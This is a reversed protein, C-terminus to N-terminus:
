FWVREGYYRNATNWKNAETLWGILTGWSLLGPLMEFLRYLVRDTGSLEAASGVRLYTKKTTDVCKNYCM